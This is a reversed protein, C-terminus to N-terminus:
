LIGLRRAEQVAAHRSTVGFKRYVASLHTKATNVSISRADAIERTTMRSPLDRLLELERPTLAAASLEPTERQRARDFLDAVFGDASGFRGSGRALLPLLQSWADIFPRRFQQPAAQRLAAELLEHALAADGAAHRLTAALLNTSVRTAEIHVVVENRLAPLLTRLAEASRGRSALLTARLTRAEVSDPLRREVREVVEGAWHLEGLALALRLEQPAAFSVMVPGTRHGLPGQWVDRLAAAAARRQAGSSAEFQALAHMSRVGVQVEINATADLCYLAMDAHATQAEVDGTAFGAWAAVVHAYALRPSSAWGRPQAFEIAQNSWRKMAPFDYTGSATWSLQSLTSLVFEDYHRREALQLAVTLDAIAGVRDGSRGRAPARFALVILDLDEDGTIAREVIGTATLAPLVDDNLLARHAAAAHHMAVLREDAIAGARDLSGLQALYGDAAALEGLDLAAIVGLVLAAPERRVADSGGVIVDRVLGAQGSLVLRLGRREILALLEGDDGSQAAHRLAVDPQGNADFWTAALAHQRRLAGIDRRAAAASLYGRLLSHYRFWGSDGARVVLANARSLQDLLEGANAQGSLAYALEASLQEPVCTAILFDALEGPLHRLYEAFLYDAVAREDGDFSAVFAARDATDALSVAALRLGAAWGETRTVLRQLDDAEVEVDLLSLMAGAEDITFELDAARIEHLEGTLRLRHLELAPDSRCILIM